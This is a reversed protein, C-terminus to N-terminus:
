LCMRVADTAKRASWSNLSHRDSLAMRPVQPNTAKAYCHIIAGPDDGWHADASELVWNLNQANQLPPIYSM